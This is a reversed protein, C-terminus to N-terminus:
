QATITVAPAQHSLSGSTGTVTDSIELGRSAFNGIKQSLTSTASSTTSTLTVSTSSFSYPWNSLNVSGNLVAQKNTLNVTGTFGNVATVTVTFQVTAGPAGTQSSPSVSVTFDSPPPSSNPYQSYSSTGLQQFALLGGALVSGQNNTDLTWWVGSTPTSHFYNYGKVLPYPNTALYPNPGPQGNLYNQIGNLYPEQIEIGTPNNATDGVADAGNEGVMIPINFQSYYKYAPDFDCSFDTNANFGLNCAYQGNGFTLNTGRDYRDISIWDVYASGPWFSTGMTLDTPSGVTSDNPTQVGFMISVNPAYTKFINYIHQFALQFDTYQGTGPNGTDGRCVQATPKSYNNPEWFWRLFIPTKLSGLAEASEILIANPNSPVGSTPGDLNGNAVAYDTSSVGTASDLVSDSSTSDCSWSIVPIRGQNIDDQIQTEPWATGSSGNFDSGIQNWGFYHLHAALKRGLQTELVYTACSIGTPDTQALSNAPPAPVTPGPPAVNTYTNPCSGPVYAGTSPNQYPAQQAWAGFYGKGAPPVTVKQALACGGLAFSVTLGLIMPSWSKTGNLSKDIGLCFRIFREMTQLIQLVNFVHKRHTSALEPAEGAPFLRLTARREHRM